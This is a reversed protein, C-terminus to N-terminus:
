NIKGLTIRDLGAYDQITKIDIFEAMEFLERVKSGQDFGHEILLWGNATLYEEAGSIIKRICQLGDAFDTLATKPEYTLEALHEDSFEIYPPNSVILNFKGNVAEYWDSQIFQVNAGLNVANFKAVELAPISYDTAVIDLDPRELKCTIAICGSGTGLDIIRANPMALKIIEDILLETEPRPILTDPTVKFQRSYFEKGRVIYALPEKAKVRELYDQYKVLQDKTLSYDDRSILQADTFGTIKRLIIKKDMKAIDNTKLLDHIKFMNLHARM